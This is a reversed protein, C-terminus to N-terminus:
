SKWPLSPIMRQNCQLRLSTKAKATIESEMPGQLVSSRGGLCVADSVEIEIYYTMSEVHNLM